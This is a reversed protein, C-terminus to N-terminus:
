PRRRVIAPVSVLATYAQDKLLMTLTTVSAAGGHCAGGGNCGTGRIVEDFVATFTANDGSDARVDVGIGSSGVGGSAAVGSAADGGGADAM